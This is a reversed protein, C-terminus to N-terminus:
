LAVRTALEGGRSDLQALLLCGVNACAIVLLLSVSGFLLWLTPRVKGVLQEKLPELTVGWGEDTKPYTHGLTRQIANLDSQAQELTAGPTLRGIAEYFRASAGRERMLDEDGQTTIWADIATPSFSRSAGITNENPSSSRNARASRDSTVLGSKSRSPKRSHASRARGAGSAARGSRATM